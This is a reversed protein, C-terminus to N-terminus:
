SIIQVHSAYSLPHASKFMRLEHSLTFYNSCTFWIPSTSQPTKRCLDPPSQHYNLSCLNPPSLLSFLCLKYMLTFIRYSTNFNGLICSVPQNSLWPKTSAKIIRFLISFWSFFWRLLVSSLWLLNENLFNFVSYCFWLYDNRYM